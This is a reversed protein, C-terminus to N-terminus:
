QKKKQVIRKIYEESSMIKKIDTIKETFEIGDLHDYEHQIVRSLIGDAQLQFKNHNEDYAEIIIKQPRKVPAFLKAYAVSGCGEYIICEKKSKWIIKPNIYIRLIDVDKTDRFSTKRAETVFIRKKAGIQGSAMGILNNARMTDVLNEIIKKTESSTFDKVSTSKQSLIPNGIQIIDKIIM